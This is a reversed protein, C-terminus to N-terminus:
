PPKTTVDNTVGNDFFMMKM